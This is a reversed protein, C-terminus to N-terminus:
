SALINQVCESHQFFEPGLMRDSIDKSYSMNHKFHKLCKRRSAILM